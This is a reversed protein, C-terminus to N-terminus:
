SLGRQRQGFHAAPQENNTQQQDDIGFEYPRGLRSRIQSRAIEVAHDGDLTVGRPPRTFAEDRHHVTVDDVTNLEIRGLSAAPRRGIVVLM